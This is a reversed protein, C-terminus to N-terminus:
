KFEVLSIINFVDVVFAVLRYAIQDLTAFFWRFINTYWHVEGIDTM